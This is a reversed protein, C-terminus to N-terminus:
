PTTGNLYHEMVLYGDRGTAGPSACTACGFHREEWADPLGDGDSDRCPSGTSYSPYGGAAAENIPPVFPGTGNRTEAIIRADVPDQRDTWKGDCTLGANAGASSLVADYAATASQLRVPFPANAWGQTTDRRWRRPVEAGEENGSKYFCAVQRTSGTWNDGNENESMPGVNGAAYISFDDNIGDVECRPNVMYQFRYITMPGAKGINNVYDTTGRMTMQMTGRSWNYLVNNAYLANDAGSQPNRHSNHALLNRHFSINTMGIFREDKLESNSGFQVATPHTGFAEAVISNQISVNSIPSSTSGGYRLIGLVYNDTWSFSLHDLVIRDGKAVILNNRTRDARGRFRVHRMVIDSINAGGGRIWLATGDGQIVVGDGPATQGALYVCSGNLRTGGPPMSIVGGTRFVIFTFRDSRIEQIAQDLSGPGYPDRNTVQLIQVPKLRCENLATAGWGEAEPFAPLPGRSGAAGSAVTFMATATAGELTASVQASGESVATVLAGDENGVVEVVSQNSSAWLLDGAGLDKGDSNRVTAEIQISQSPSLSSTAPSVGVTLGTEEDEGTGSTVVVIASGVQGSRSATIVTTGPALARVRGDPDVRAVEKTSTRWIFEVDPNVAGSPWREVATLTVFSGVAVTVSDPTVTVTRTPTPPGDEATQQLNAELAAPSFAAEDPDCAMIGTAAIVALLILGLRGRLHPVPNPTSTLPSLRPFPQPM